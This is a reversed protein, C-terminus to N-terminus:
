EHFPEAKQLTVRMTKGNPTEYARTEGV